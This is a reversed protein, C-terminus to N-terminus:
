RSERWPRRGWAAMPKVLGALLFLAAMPVTLPGWSDGTALVAAVGLSFVTGAVTTVWWRRARATRDARALEEALVLPHGFEPFASGAGTGIAQQVEAVHGRATAAPVLRARLGGRLRRLWAADDWDGQLTPQAMRSSDVLLLVGPTLLVVAMLPLPVDRALLRDAGLSDAVAIGGIALTLVGMATGLTAASRGASYLARGAVWGVLVAALSAVLLLSAVDVDVSRGSRMAMSLLAIVGGALTTGGVEHLAPKLGGAESSRVAEDITALEAADEASLAAADGFLEAAPVGAECVADFLERERAARVSPPVAKGAMATRYRMVWRQDQEPWTRLEM